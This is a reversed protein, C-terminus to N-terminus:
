AQARLTWSAGADPSAMVRGDALAVYLQQGSAMVSVPQGDLAGRPRLTGGPAGALVQGDLTVVVLRESAPWALLGLESGVPSWTRGADASIIRGSETAAMLRDPDKPDIALDFLPGPVQRESWTRGGDTSALFRSSAGDYGYVREGAARLVHFDAEGLLSVSRWTRGGDRSEILGLLGPLDQTPGPHGSAILRDPSAVSFGMFDQTAASVQELGTQRAPARFLGNHGAVYLAGDGGALGLGHVHGVDVPGSGAPAGGAGIAQSGANSGGGGVLMVIGVILAVVLVGGGVWGYLQQRREAAAAAREREVREQRAREKQEQRQAM